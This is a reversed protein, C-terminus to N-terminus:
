TKLKNFAKYLTIIQRYCDHLANHLINNNITERQVNAIDFLTRTDRLRWYSWPIPINCKNYANELIVSDFSIGHSWFIAGNPFWNKFEILVEKLPFRNKDSFVEEQSIPEQLRWWEITKKDIKLGLQKCSDLSIRRYFTDMNKLETIQNNRSFKIAGITLIAANINTSFTEIDVM